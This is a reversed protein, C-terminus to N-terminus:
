NSSGRIKARIRQVMDDHEAPLKELFKIRDPIDSSPINTGADILTCIEDLCKSVHWGWEITNAAEAVDFLRDLVTPKPGNDKLLEYKLCAIDYVRRKNAFRLNGLSNNIKNVKPDITNAVETRVLDSLKSESAEFKSDIRAMRDQIVLDLESGKLDIKNDISEVLSNKDRNFRATAFYVNVGLFTLLFTAAFGLAWLYVQRLEKQSEILIRNQEELRVVQESLGVSNQDELQQSHATELLLMHSIFLFALAIKSIKNNPM